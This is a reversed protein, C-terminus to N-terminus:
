CGSRRGGFYPIFSAVAALFGLLLANPHGIVIFAITYEFFSIIVIKLFGSVYNNMQVDLEKLYDFNRLSVKKSYYKIYARIKDMDILFYIAASFAIVATSIVGLSMNIASIAGDKASTGVSAIIENFTKTLTEQLPGLNM